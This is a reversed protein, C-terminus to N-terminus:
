TFHRDASPVTQLPEPFPLLYLITSSPGSGPCSNRSGLPAEWRAGGKRGEKKRKRKRGGKKKRKGEGETKRGERGEEQGGHPPKRRHRSDCCLVLARGLAHRALCVGWLGDSPTLLISREEYQKGTCYAHSNGLVTNSM